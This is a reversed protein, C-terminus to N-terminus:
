SFVFFVLIDYLAHTYVVIAFGRLVYVMALYLGAMTRFAFVDFSFPDGMPGVHHVASFLLSSAVVALTWAIAPRTDRVRRLLYVGGSLLGVRFVLEEHFGAGAAMVFKDLPGMADLADGVSLAARLQAAAWGVSVLMLLAWGVSEMLVPGLAAPRVRGRRRQVWIALMLGAAVALTAGIYGPVSAELLQFTLGSILDVGNRFDIMLVGLHYILFVPITLVVSTLPDPKSRALKDLPGALFKM